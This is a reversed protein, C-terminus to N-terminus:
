WEKWEDGYRQTMLDEWEEQEYVKLNSWPSNDRRRVAEILKEPDVLYEKALALIKQIEEESLSEYSETSEVSQSATAIDETEEGVTIRRYEFNGDAREVEEEALVIEGTSANFYM